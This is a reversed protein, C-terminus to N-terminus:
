FTSDRLNGAAAQPDEAGYISRGVILYDAGADVANRGEGGQAGVGPSYIAMDKGVLGRVRRIIQPRTAGVVVGDAKWEVALECMLEFIPRPEERSRSTKLSYFTEAGPNSMYVLLIVGMGRESATRFVVDLGDEWGVVPSAIIADFGVDAYARAMFQNTHGVDNLKADMIVPLSLDHATKVLAEVGNRLALSLVLQRNIKLGCIHASTSHLIQVSRSLLRKPDPDEIDLALVIRSKKEQSTKRIREAFSV